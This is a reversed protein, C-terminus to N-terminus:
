RIVAARAKQANVENVIKFIDVDAKDCMSVAVAVATPVEEDTLRALLSKRGHPANRNALNTHTKYQFERYFDTYAYAYNGGYKRAALSRILRTLIARSDWSDTEKMLATKEVSLAENEGSLKENEGSLRTNESRLAANKEQEAKLAQALRMIFDPNLIAKEIVKPSMFAGYMRVTPLVESTIWRKFEQASPLKSSLILSYLGSENIVIMKQPGGLTYRNTVGKDDDMVHDHIAKSSNMYGLADTIDKGVFWPESGKLVVRVTGFKQSVFEKLMDAVPNETFLDDPAAAGATEDGETKAATDAATTEPAAHIKATATTDPGAATETQHSEAPQAAAMETEQKELADIVPRLKRHMPNQRDSFYTDIKRLNEIDAYRTKLNGRGTFLEVNARTTRVSPQFVASPKNFAERAIDPLSYYYKGDKAKVSINM